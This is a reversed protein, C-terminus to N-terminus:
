DQWKFLEEIPMKVGLAKKIAQAEVLKFDSVGNIRSSMKSVSWGLQRALQRENGKRHIEANLNPYM